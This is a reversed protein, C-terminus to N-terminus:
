RFCNAHARNEAFVLPQIDWLRYGVEAFTGAQTPENTTNPTHLQISCFAMLKVFFSRRCRVLVAIGVLPHGERAGGIVKMRFLSTERLVWIVVAVRAAVVLNAM